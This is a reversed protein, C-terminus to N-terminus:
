VPALSHSADGTRFAAIAQSLRETQDRLSEAAAASEEVLAANQQTMQDLQNVAVNVQGIGDSQEAAAATIEGIIDTVRQVSSVIESMTTGADEVL